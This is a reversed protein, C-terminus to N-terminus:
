QVRDYLAVSRNATHRLPAAPTDSRETAKAQEQWRIEGEGYREKM